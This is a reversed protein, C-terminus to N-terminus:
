KTSELSVAAFWQEAELLDREATANISIHVILGGYSKNNPFLKSLLVEGFYHGQDIWEVWEENRGAIKANRKKKKDPSINRSFANPHHGVYVLIGPLLLRKNNLYHLDFDAPKKTEREYGEPMRIVIAPAGNGWSPLIYRTLSSRGKTNQSSLPVAAFSFFVFIFILLCRSM